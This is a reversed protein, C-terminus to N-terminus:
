LKNKFVYRRLFTFNFLASIATSFLFAIIINQRIETKLIVLILKNFMININLSILYVSIFKLFIKVGGVARFTWKQNIFYSYLTGASFSFAKSITLFFGIRILITYVTLDVLVSSFGSIIFRRLEKNIKIM